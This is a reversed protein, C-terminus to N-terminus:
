VGEHTKRFLDTKIPLYDKIAERMYEPVNKNNRITEIFVHAMFLPRKQFLRTIFKEDFTDFQPRKADTHLGLKCLVYELLECDADVLQEQWTRGNANFLKARMERRDIWEQDIVYEFNKMM